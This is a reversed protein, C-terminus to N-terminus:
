KSRKAADEAAKKEAARAGALVGGMTYNGEHCEFKFLQEDTKLM